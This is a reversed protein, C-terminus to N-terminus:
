PLKKAREKLRQARRAAYEQIIKAKEEDSKGELAKETVNRDYLRDKEQKIALSCDDLAKKSFPPHYNDSSIDSVKAELEDANEAGSNAIDGLLLRSTSPVKDKRSM